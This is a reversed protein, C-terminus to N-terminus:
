GGKNLITGGDTGVGFPVPLTTIPKWNYGIKRLSAADRLNNFVTFSQSDAFVIMEIFFEKGFQRPADQLAQLFANIADKNLEPDLGMAPNPQAIQRNKDDTGWNIHTSDLNQRGREITATPYIKGNALILNIKEAKTASEIPLSIKRYPIKDLAKALNDHELVTELRAIDESVTLSEEELSEIEERLELQELENRKALLEASVGEEQLQKLLESLEIKETEIEDVVVQKQLQLQQFNLVTANHEAVLDLFEQELLETSNEDLRRMKDKLEAGKKEVSLALLLAILIIGGFTNCLTDLLMDLSGSDDKERAM